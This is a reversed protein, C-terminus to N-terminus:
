LYDINIYLPESYKPDLSDLLVLTKFESIFSIILM